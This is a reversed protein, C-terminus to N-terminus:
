KILREIKRILRKNEQHPDFELAIERAMVEKPMTPYFSRLERIRDQIRRELERDADSKPKM